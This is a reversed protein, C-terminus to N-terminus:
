CLELSGGPSPQYEGLTSREKYPFSIPQWIWRCNIGIEFAIQPPGALHVVKIECNFCRHNIQWALGDFEKLPVRNLSGVRGILFHRASADSSSLELSSHCQSLVWKSENRAAAMVLFM